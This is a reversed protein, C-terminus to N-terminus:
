ITEAPTGPQRKGGGGGGLSAFRTHLNMGGPVGFNGTLLVVLACAQWSEAFGSHSGSAAAIETM